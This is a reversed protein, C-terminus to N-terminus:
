ATIFFFSSYFVIVRAGAFVGPSSNWNWDRSKWLPEPIKKKKKYVLHTLIIGTMHTVKTRRIRAIIIFLFLSVNNQVRLRIHEVGQIIRAHICQVGIYYYIMTNSESFRSISAITVTIYESITYKILRFLWRVGPGPESM